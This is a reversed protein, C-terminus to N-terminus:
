PLGATTAGDGPWEWIKERLRPDNSHWPGSITSETPIYHPSLEYYGLRGNWAQSTAINGPMRRIKRWLQSIFNPLPRLVLSCSYNHDHSVNTKYVCWDVQKLATASHKWSKMMLICQIYNAALSWDNWVQNQRAPNLAATCKSLSLQCPVWGITLM